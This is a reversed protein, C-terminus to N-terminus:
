PSWALFTGRTLGRSISAPTRVDHSKGRWCHSCSDWLTELFAQGSTWLPSRNKFLALAGRRNRGNVALKRGWNLQYREKPRLYGIHQCSKFIYTQKPGKEKVGSEQIQTSGLRRGRFTGFNIDRFSLKRGWLYKGGVNRTEILSLWGSKVCALSRLVM